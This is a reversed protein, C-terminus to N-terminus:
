HPFSIVIIVRRNDPELAQKAPDYTPPDIFETSGYGVSKLKSADVGAIQLLNKVADARKQSLDINYQPNTNAGISDAYGKIMFFAQPHHKQVLKLSEALQGLKSAADPLLDSSDFEFLAGGPLGIQDGNQLGGGSNALAEDLSKTGPIAGTNSPSGPTGNKANEALKIVSKSSTQTKDNILQESVKNLDNDIQKTVNQQAKELN